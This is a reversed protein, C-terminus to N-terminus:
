FRMIYQTGFYPAFDRSPHNVFAGLFGSLQPEGRLGWSRPMQWLYVLGAIDRDLDTGSTQLRDWRFALLLYANSLERGILYGLTPKFWLFSDSQELVIDFYPEHYFVPEFAGPEANRDRKFDNMALHVFDTEMTVVIRGSRYRPTVQGRLMLGDMTIRDRQQADGIDSLSWGQSPDEIPINYGQYGWYNVYQASARLQLLAVPLAQVFGGLWAYAPSLGISPGAEVYAGQFLRSDSGAFLPMRLSLDSIVNLGLPTGRLAVATTSCVHLGDRECAREAAAEEEALAHSPLLVMCAILCVAVPAFRTM